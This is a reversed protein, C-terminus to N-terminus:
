ISIVLLSLPSYTHNISNPRPELNISEGPVGPANDRGEVEGENLWVDCIVYHGILQHYGTQRCDRTMSIRGSLSGVLFILVWILATRM